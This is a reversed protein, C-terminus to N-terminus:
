KFVLLKFAHMYVYLPLFSACTSLVIFYTCLISVKFFYFEWKDLFDGLIKNKKEYIPKAELRM